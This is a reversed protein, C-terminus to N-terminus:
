ANSYSSYWGDSQMVKIYCLIIICNSTVAVLCDWKCFKETLDTWRLGIKAYYLM